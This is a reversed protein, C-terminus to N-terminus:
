CSAVLRTFSFGDGIPVIVTETRSDTQIHRAFATSALAVPDPQEDVVRGNMFLNDAILIGSPKLRPVLEEYYRIYSEKDADVFALDVSRTSPLARLTKLAPAIRLDIREAVGAREWYRRAVSTYEEDIDCCLLKGGEPLARAMALASLGTFTGVEVVFHARVLKVMFALLAAQEIGVQMTRIAGMAATERVLEDVLPDPSPNHAIMYDYIAAPLHPNQSM